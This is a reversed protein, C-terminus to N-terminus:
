KNGNGGRETQKLYDELQQRTFRVTRKGIKCHPIERAAILYDIHRKSVRYFKAAELRTFIEQDAM